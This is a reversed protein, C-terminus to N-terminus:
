SLIFRSYIMAVLHFDPVDNLRINLCTGLFPFFCYSKPFIFDYQKEHRLAIFSWPSIRIQLTCIKCTAKRPLEGEQFLNKIYRSITSKDRQFLEAMQNSKENDYGMRM